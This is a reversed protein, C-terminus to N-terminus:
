RFYILRFHCRAKTKNGCDTNRNTGLRFAIRNGHRKARRENISGNFFASILITTIVINDTSLRRKDASLNDTNRFIIKVIIQVRLVEVILSSKGFYFSSSVQVFHIM